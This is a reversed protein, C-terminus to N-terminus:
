SGSKFDGIGEVAFFEGALLKNWEVIDSETVAGAQGYHDYSWMDQALEIAEEATEANATGIFLTELESNCYFCGKRYVNWEKQGSM